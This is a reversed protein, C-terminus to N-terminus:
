DGAFFDRVATIVEDQQERTMEPFCPLSLVERAAKEAEPLMGPKYGLNKFCPQLHLPIEYYIRNGIGVANLHLRLPERGDSRMRITYQNYVHFRDGPEAPPTLRLEEFKRTYRHAHARRAETYAELMPLKVDLAATQLGDLRFNGGIMSYTYGTGPDLGHNRLQRITKALDDNDTIVAGGDGPGALNKSPYFSLCGCDGLTGVPQDKYRAGIAQAADEIVRLGFRRAIAMIKDMAAPLGFLHVPIIAKTAPTIAGEIADPELNYTRPDIDVFVPRAGLRSICGATCFFTFPTTIVEDGPGIGMAMMSVLLADTGSSVTIAHKVGCAEALHEEFDTVFKSLIFGNADIVAGLAEDMQDRVAQHQATLDLLPVAM